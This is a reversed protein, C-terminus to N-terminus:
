GKGRARHLLQSHWGTAWAAGIADALCTNRLRRARDAYFESDISGDERRIIPPDGETTTESEHSMTDDEQL